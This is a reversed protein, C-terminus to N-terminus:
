VWELRGQLEVGFQIKGNLCRAQNSLKVPRTSHKVQFRPLPRHHDEVIASSEPSVVDLFEDAVDGDEDMRLLKAYWRFGQVGGNGSTCPSLVPGPPPRDVPVQVPVSFGKRQPHQAAAAAAPAFASSTSVVDNEHEEDKLVEVEDKSIGLFGALRRFLGM